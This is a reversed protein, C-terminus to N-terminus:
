PGPELTEPQTQDSASRLHDLYSQLIIEAALADRDEKATKKKATLWRDAEASSYREDWFVVKQELRDVLIEGFKRVAQAMEGEEGSSTLPLGLVVTKINRASIIDQLYQLISGDKGEVHTKLAFALYQQDDGVALGIRKKGYDLGLYTNM